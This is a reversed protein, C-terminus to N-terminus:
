GKIGTVDFAVPHTAPAAAAHAFFRFPGAREVDTEAIFAHRASRAIPMAVPMAVSHHCRRQEYVPGVVMAPGDINVYAVGPDEDRGDHVILSYGARAFGHMYRRWAADDFSSHDDPIFLALCDGREFKWAGPEDNDEIFGTRAYGNYPGIRDPDPQGNANPIGEFGFEMGNDRAWEFLAISLSETFTGVNDLYFRRIGVFDRYPFYIREPKKVDASVSVDPPQANTMNVLAPDAVRSGLYLMVERRPRARVWGGIKDILADRQDDFMPEWQGSSVDHFLLRGAPTRVCLREAGSPTREDLCDQLCASAQSHWPINNPSTGPRYQEGQENQDTRSSNGAIKIELVPRTDKRFLPNIFTEYEVVLEVHDIRVITGLQGSTLRARIAVGFDGNVLRDRWWFNWNNRGRPFVTDTASTLAIVAPLQNKGAVDVEDGDWGFVEFLEGNGAAGDRSAEINVQIKKFLIRQPLSSLDAGTCVLYQSTTSTLLNLTATAYTDNSSAANSPNQWAM